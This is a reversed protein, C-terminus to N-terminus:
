WLCEYIDCACECWADNVSCVPWMFDLCRVHFGFMWVMRFLDMWVPWANAMPNNSNHGSGGGSGAFFANVDAEGEPTSPRARSASVQLYDIKFWLLNTFQGYYYSADM